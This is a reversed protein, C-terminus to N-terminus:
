MGHITMNFVFVNGMIHKFYVGAAKPLHAVLDWHGSLLNRLPDVPEEVPVEEEAPAVSAADSIDDLFDYESSQRYPAEDDSADEDNPVLTSAPASTPPVDMPDAGEGSVETPHAEADGGLTVGEWNESDLWLLQEWQRKM